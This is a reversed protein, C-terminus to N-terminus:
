RLAENIAKQYNKTLRDLFVDNAKNFGKEFFGGNKSWTNVQDGYEVNTGFAASIGSQREEFRGNFSGHKQVNYSYSTTKPTEVHESTVLRGTVRPTSLRMETVGALATEECALQMYNEGLTGLKEFMKVVDDFGQLEVQIM